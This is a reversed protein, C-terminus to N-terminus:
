AQHSIKCQSFRLSPTEETLVFSKIVEMEDEQNELHEVNKEAVIM